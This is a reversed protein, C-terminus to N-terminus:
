MYIKAARYVVITFLSIAVYDLIKSIPLMITKTSNISKDLVFKSSDITTKVLKSNEILNNSITSFLSPEKISTKKLLKM